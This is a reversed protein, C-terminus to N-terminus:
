AFEVVAQHFKLNLKIKEHKNLSFKINKVDCSDDDKKDLAVLMVAVDPNICNQVLQVLM